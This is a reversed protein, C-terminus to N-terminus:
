GAKELLMTVPDEEDELFTHWTSSQELYKSKQVVTTALRIFVLRTCVQSMEKASFTPSPIPLMMVWNRSFLSREQEDLLPASSLDKFGPISSVRAAETTGGTSVETWRRTGNSIDTGPKPQAESRYQQIGRWCCLCHSGRSSVWIGREWCNKSEVAALCTLTLGWCIAAM